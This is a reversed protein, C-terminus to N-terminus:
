KNIGTIEIITKLWSENYNLSKVMVLEKGGANKFLNKYENDIESITELCDTVFSPAAILIRKKNESALKEILKDTFPALWNKNLRSQFSTSYNDPALNIKEAILRTTEYCTARYCYKGHEPMIEDCNCEKYSIKNHIKNIHKIPLSHYSFIVHDYTDPFYQMINDSFAEIFLPHSFFQSILKISPIVNWTIVNKMIFSFVSGTTSSSYQPFLPFVIMEDYNKNKMETLTKKLSPNGYRMASYLDINNVSFEKIGSVLKETNVMLPSGEETWINKYLYASHKTRFPVIILNVLLKRLFWPLDIVRKDNLFESIFKRVDKIDPSDPTGTNVLLLGKKRM